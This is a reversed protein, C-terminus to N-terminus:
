AETPLTRRLTEVLEKVKLCQECDAQPNDCPIGDAQVEPCKPDRVFDTLEVLFEEMRARLTGDPLERLSGLIHKEVPTVLISTREAM